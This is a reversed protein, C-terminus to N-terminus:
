ITQIGTVKFTLVKISPLLTTLTISIVNLDTCVRM